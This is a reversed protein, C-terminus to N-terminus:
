ARPAATRPLRSAETWGRWRREYGRGYTPRPVGSTARGSRPKTTVKAATSARSASTSAWRAAAPRKSVERSPPRSGPPRRSCTRRSRASRPWSTRRSSARRPSASTACSRACSAIGRASSWRRTGPARPSTRAAYPTRTSTRTPRESRPSTGRRCTPARLTRSASNSASARTARPRRRIPDSWSKIGIAAWRSACRSRGRGTSARTGFFTTSGPRGASARKPRTRKTTASARRGNSSSRPRKSWRSRSARSSPTCATASAQM